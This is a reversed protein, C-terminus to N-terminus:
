KKLNKCRSSPKEFISSFPGSFNIHMNIGFQVVLGSDKSFKDSISPGIDNDNSDKFSADSTAAIDYGVGAFIDVNPSFIYGLKVEPTISFTSLTLSSDQEYSYNQIEYNLDILGSIYLSNIINYRKELGINFKYVIANEDKAKYGYIDTLKDKTAYGFGFGFNFWWESMAESNLIYGLDASMGLNLINTAGTNSTTKDLDDKFESSNHTFNINGFVGSWPHEVALDAQEISGKILEIDTKTQKEKPLLLCDDGVKRAKAYGVIREKFDVTRVIKFPTDVRIDEQNGVSLKAYSNKVDEVPTFIAFNRDAKLKISLALINDKFSKKFADDFIKQAHINTPLYSTTVSTNSSINKAMSEFFGDAKSNIEKSIEFKNDKFKNVILYLTTPANLSTSYSIIVRGKSDIYKQQSILIFGKLKPMYISFAFASNVLKELISVPMGIEKAKTTIFTHKEKANMQDYRVEKAANLVPTIKTAIESNLYNSIDKKFDSYSELPIDLEKLKDIKVEIDKKPTVVKASNTTFILKDYRNPILFLYNNSLIKDTYKKDIKVHWNGIFIPKANKVDPRYFVPFKFSDTELGLRNIAMVAKRESKKVSADADIQAFKDEAHLTTLVVNCILIAFLLKLLKFRM